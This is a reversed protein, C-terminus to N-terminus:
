AETVKDLYEMVKKIYDLKYGRIELSGGSEGPIELNFLGQYGIERLATVVERWDVSNKIAFPALHYDDTGDNGNIHTAKLYKGATLIFDRHSQTTTKKSVRAVQLHGTDLCIGLHKDGLQRIWWLIKEADAVTPNPRLNELCITIDSGQIFDLLQGMVALQQDIRRDEPLDEGGSIHIMAYRVGVAQFLTLERKFADVTGPALLPKQFDLHGQPMGYGQDELFSRFRSGSVEPDPGRDLLMLSHDVGLESYSFGAEKCALVAKEPSLTEFYDLWIASKM